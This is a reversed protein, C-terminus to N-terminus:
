VSAGAILLAYFLTGIAAVVFGFGGLLLKKKFLTGVGAGIMAGSAVVSALRFLVWPASLFSTEFLTARMALVIGGVGIAILTTMLFMDRLTYRPM